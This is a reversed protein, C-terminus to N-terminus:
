IRNVAGRLAELNMKLQTAADDATIDEIDSSDDVTELDSVHLESQEPELTETNEDGSEGEWESMTENMDDMVSGALDAKTQALENSWHEKEALLEPNDGKELERDIQELRDEIGEKKFALFEEQSLDSAHGGLDDHDYKAGLSVPGFQLKPDDGWKAGFGYKLGVSGSVGIAEQEISLNGDVANGEPSTLKTYTREYDVGTVGIEFGTSSIGGEVKAADIEWEHVDASGDSNISFSSMGMTAGKFEVSAIEANLDDLGISVEGDKGIYGYDFAGIEGNRVEMEMEGGGVSSPDIIAVGSGDDAKFVFNGTDPHVHCKPPVGDNMEYMVNLFTVKQHATMANFTEEFEPNIQTFNAYPIM